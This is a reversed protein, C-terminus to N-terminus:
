AEETSEDIEDLEASALDADDAEDDDVDSSKRNFEIEVRAGAIEGYALRRATPRRGKVGPVELDVGEDDAGTVRATLEGGGALRARVLRGTNRRYHRPSTLPRDTGPSGVELVYATGGMVDSADLAGSIERSLDAVVDLSVGDDSDVVVRLVRRRGAPVVAIEELEVGADAALPELLQRLRDSPTTSM